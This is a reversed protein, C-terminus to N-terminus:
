LGGFVLLGSLTAAVTEAARRSVYKSHSDPVYLVDNAAMEPDPEKGDMIKGVDIRTETLQGDDARHIIRAAKKAPYPGLGQALALAQLVSVSDRDDLTFGGARNVDGVVYIIDAKSVSVIDNPKLPINLGPERSYLLPKLEIEVQNPSLQHMGPVPALTGFGSKRTVYVYKGPTGQARRGLGGAMSLVELLSRPGPLQYLGPAQVAGIVSVPQAHYETVFLTVQPDELYKKGWERELQQKLERSTLGAAKVRGLLKVSIMGDNEVRVMQKLEPVNFVDISLIDEPGLVYNPGLAGGGKPSGSRPPPSVNDQDDPPPAEDTVSGVAGSIPEAPDQAHLILPAVLALAFFLWVAGNLGRRQDQTM